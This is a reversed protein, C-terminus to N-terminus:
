YHPRKQDTYRNLPSRSRSRNGRVDRRSKSEQNPSRSRCSYSHLSRTGNRFHNVEQRLATNATLSDPSVDSQRCSPCVHGDSELLCTRICEDCSSSRCCPSMVADTLLDKCILCLLAAPIPDSSSPSSHENQPSFPPKEKKGIAYADADMVPIVYKGSSDMMVGKRDPDDVEVLFSRPIGACKRMRKLPAHNKDANSLCNKIHHGPIRCRFCIYNPPLLGILKMADSSSYYCLSSQYMVAKLKDEESANAEALNETKLLLDLSVPSSDGFQQTQSSGCSPELWNNVFRTNTYKLGAAPIRRIIVSTNNPILAEDDTYEENTQACSIQLGCLKLRERKMIQQKLERVTIHVSEFPITDHSLKSRFKYHVCPM